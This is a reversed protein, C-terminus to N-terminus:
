RQEVILPIQHGRPALHKHKSLNCHRCLLQINGITHTGGVVLAVIHDIHYGNKLSKACYICQGKQETYLRQIADFTVTGDDTAKRRAYWKVTRVQYEPKHRQYYDARKAAWEPSWQYPKRKRRRRRKIDARHQVAAAREPHAKKWERNRANVCKRCKSFLGDPTKKDAYYGNETSGCQACPKTPSSM